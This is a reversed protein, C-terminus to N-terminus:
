FTQPRWPSPGALLMRDARLAAGAGLERVRGAAVLSQMTVGGLSVAALDGADLADVM